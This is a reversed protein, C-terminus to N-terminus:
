AYDNIRSHHSKCLAELNTPDLRRSPDVRLPVKHHIETAETVRGEAECRICTPNANLFWLRFKRWNGDYGRRYASPREDRKRRHEQCDRKGCVNCATPIRRNTM